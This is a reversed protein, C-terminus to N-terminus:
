AMYPTPTASPIPAFLDLVLMVVVSPRCCKPSLERAPRKLGHVDFV